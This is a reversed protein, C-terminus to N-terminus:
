TNGRSNDNQFVMFMNQCKTEWVVANFLMQKGFCIIVLANPEHVFDNINEYKQFTKILEATASVFCCRESVYVLFYRISGM